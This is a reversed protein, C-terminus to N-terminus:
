AQHDPLPRITLRLGASGRRGADRQSAQWLLDMGCRMADVAAVHDDQAHGGRRTAASATM